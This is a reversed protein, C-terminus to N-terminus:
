MKVLIGEAVLAAVTGSDLTVATGDCQVDCVAGTATKVLTLNKKLLTKSDNINVLRNETVKYLNDAKSTVAIEVDSEGMTFKKTTPNVTVGGKLVKIEDIEYGQAPTLTLTVEDNKALGTTASASAASFHSDAVLTVTLTGSFLHLNVKKM